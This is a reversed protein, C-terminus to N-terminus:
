SGCFFVVRQLMIEGATPGAAIVKWKVDVEEENHMLHGNSHGSFLLQRARVPNRNLSNARSTAKGNKHQPAAKTKSLIKYDKLVNLSGLQIVCCNACQTGTCM